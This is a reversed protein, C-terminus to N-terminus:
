GATPRVRGWRVRGLLASAAYVLACLVAIVGGASLGWWAALALGALSTLGGLLASGYVLADLSRVWRWLAAAPAAVLAIPLITGVAPVLAGITLCVLVMICAEAAGPSMGGARYGLPDFAASVMRHGTLTYLALAVALVATTIVLDSRSVNLVSGTLFADVKLPLPAFWTSLFHGAAFGVSLVVGAAAQSSLGCASVLWRTMAVIPACAAVAGLILALSLAQEGVRGSGVQEGLWAAVVVGIVGGPFTAHTLAQTTFVRRAVVALAGVGGALGGMVLCQLGPLWLLELSPSM